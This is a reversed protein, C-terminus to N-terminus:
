FLFSNYLIKSNIFRSISNFVILALPYFAILTDDNLKSAFQQASTIILVYGLNNVLGIFAFCCYIIKKRSIYPDNSKNVEEKNEQVQIQQGTYKEEM